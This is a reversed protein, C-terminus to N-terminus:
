WASVRGYFSPGFGVGALIEDDDDPSPGTVQKVKSGLTAAVKACEKINAEPKLHIWLYLSHTKNEACVQTHTYSTPALHLTM